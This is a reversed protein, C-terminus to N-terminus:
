LSIGDVKEKNIKQDIFQELQRSFNGGLTKLFQQRKIVDFKRYLLGFEKADFTAMDFKFFGFARLEKQISQMGLRSEVVSELGYCRYLDSRRTTDNVKKTITKM